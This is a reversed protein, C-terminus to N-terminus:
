SSVLNPCEQNHDLAISQPGKVDRRKAEAHSWTFQKPDSPRIHVELTAVHDNAM